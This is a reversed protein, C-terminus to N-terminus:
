KENTQSLLAEMGETFYPRAYDAPKLILSDFVILDIDIIVKGQQKDSAKRGMRVETEKLRHTVETASLSTTFRVVQNLFQTGTYVQGVAQTQMLPSFQLHNFVQEHQELLQRAMSMHSAADWNSGLTLYCTHLSM